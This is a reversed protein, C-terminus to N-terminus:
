LIQELSWIHGLNAHLCRTFLPNLCVTSHQSVQTLKPIVLHLQCRARPAPGLVLLGVVRLWVSMKCYQGSTLSRKSAEQVTRRQHWPVSLGATVPSTSCSTGHQSEGDRFYKNREQPCATRKSVKKQAEMYFIKEHLSSFCFTEGRM